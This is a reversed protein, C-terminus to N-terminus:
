RFSLSDSDLGTLNVIGQLKVLIDVTSSYAGVTMDEYVYTNDQYVFWSVLADVGNSDHATTVAVLANALSSATGVDVEDAYILESGFDVFGLIDTGGLSFTFDIITDLTTANSDGAIFIFTDNGIGGALTDTGINGYIFDDGTEGKLMDNGDGGYLADNGNNGIIVDNDLGGYITDNGNMGDLIDNGALGYLTDADEGGYLQDIDSGGFITDMGSGGDAWNVGDGTDIWDNGSEGYVFDDGLDASINDNDAGGGLTDNGDDGYLYDDGADGWVFDNGADGHLSDNGADGYLTDIESGGYLTDNDAGGHLIDKKSFGYIRDDGADGYIMSEGDGTYILDNGEKAYLWDKNATGNFTDAITTLTSSIANTLFNAKFADLDIKARDVSTTDATIYDMIKSAITTDDLILTTAFYIGTSTKNALLAQDTTSTGAKAGNIVAIIFANRSVLGTDIQTTWYDKGVLDASRNLVNLYVQDILSSTSLSKPYLIQTEPQDFFSQAVMELSWGATDINSVWYTLGTADPARGFTAIYLETVNQTTTAM